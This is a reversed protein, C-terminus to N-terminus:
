VYNPIEKKKEYILVALDKGYQDKFAAAIDKIEEINADDQEVCLHYIEDIPFLLYKFKIEYVTSITTNNKPDKVYHPAYYLVEFGERGDDTIKPEFTYRNYDISM